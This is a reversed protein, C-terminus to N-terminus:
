RRSRDCHSTRIFAIMLSAPMENPHSLALVMTKHSVDAVQYLQSRAGVAKFAEELRLSAHKIEDPDEAAYLILFPPSGKEVFRLISQKAPGDNWSPLPDAAMAGRTDPLPSPVVATRSDKRM